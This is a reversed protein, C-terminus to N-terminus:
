SGPHGSVARIRSRRRSLEEELGKIQAQDTVVPDIDMGHVSVVGGPVPNMMPLAFDLAEALAVRVAIHPLNAGRSAYAAAAGSTFAGASIEMVKPARPDDCTLDVSFIGHPRPAVARIAEMALADVQPAAITEGVGTVGSVGSPTLRAFEWSHRRTGQAAVLNGHDWVSEWVTTPKGVLEVAMSRGWGATLDLWGKAMQLDSVVLSAYGRSAQVDRLWLRKGVDTFARWLDAEGNITVSRLVPVGERRCRDYTEARSELLLATEHSPLLTAAGLQKRHASINLLELGAPVYVLQSRTEKVVRRLIPIFDAEEMQPLLHREDVQARHLAMEDWDAGVLHFPEPSARLAQSFGVALHGGAAVILVRKM